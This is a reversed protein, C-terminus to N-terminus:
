IALQLCSINHGWILPQMEHWCGHLSHTVSVGQKYRAKKEKEHIMLTWVYQLGYEFNKYNLGSIQALKVQISMKSNM